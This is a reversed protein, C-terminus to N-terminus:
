WPARFSTALAIGGAVHVALWRRTAVPSTALAAAAVGLPIALFLWIREVEAKSLGTADAALVGVLV